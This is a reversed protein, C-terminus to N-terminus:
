KILTMKKSSVFDGAQLRYIYMGSALYSADFSVTYRGRNKYGEALTTVEKGLIDYLKLTIFGDQPLHFNITTSPNFPNPYNQSLQYEEPLESGDYYIETFSRKQLASAYNQVNTLNYSCLGQTSTVLRLYYEGEPIGSCNVQYSINNYKELNNKDYSIEDFVGAVNGTSTNVLEARFSVRDLDTLGTDAAEKYLVYYYNSFLFSSSQNLQFNDTRVANNIEEDSSWTITDPLPIFNVASDGNVVDGINFVFEVGNKIIVGSRGYTLANQNNIEALKGIGPEQDCAINFNNTCRDIVYPLQSRNLVMVEINNLGTANSVVPVAGTHSLPSLNCYTTGVRKIWKANAGNNESWAIVTAPSSSSVSNNNVQSVNDGAIFFDGWTGNQKVRTVMKHPYEGGALEKPLADGNYGKWSVVVTNDSGTLSISPSINNELSSGSSIREYELTQGRHAYSTYAYYVNPLDHWCMQIEYYNSNHMPVISLDSCGSSNNLDGSYWQWKLPNGSYAYRKYYFGDTSNKKYYIVVKDLGTVAGINFFAIVPKAQGFFSSLIFTEPVVEFSIITGQFDMVVYWLQVPSAETERYEFVVHIQDEFIDTSPNAAEGSGNFSYPFKISIANLIDIEPIWDSHFENSATYWIRNMSEYVTFYLGDSLRQFKRQSTNLASSNNSRLNGKYYATFNSPATIALNSKVPNIDGTDWHLFRWYTNYANFNDAATLEYRDDTQNFNFAYYPNALINEQIGSINLKINYNVNTGGELNNFVDLKYTPQFNAIVDRNNDILLSAPNFYQNIDKNWDRFKKQNEVVGQHTGFSNYGTPVNVLSGSSYPISNVSVVGYDYLGENRVIINQRASIIKTATVMPVPQGDGALDYVEVKLEIDHLGMTVNCKHEDKYFYVPSIGDSFVYYNLHETYKIKQEQGNPLIRYAWYIGYEGHGGEINATYESTQNYGLSEPGGEIQVQFVATYDERESVFKDWQWDTYEDPDWRLAHQSGDYNAIFDPIFGGVDENYPPYISFMNGIGNEDFVKIVWWNRGTLTVPYPGDNTGTDFSSYYSIVQPCPSIARKPFSKVPPYDRVKTYFPQNRIIAFEDNNGAKPNPVVGNWGQSCIEVISPCQAYIPIYVCFILLSILVKM